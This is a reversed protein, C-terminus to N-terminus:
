KEFEESGEEFIHFDGGDVSACRDQLFRTLIWEGIDSSGSIQHHEDPKVVVERGLLVPLGLVDLRPGVEHSVLPDVLECVGVIVEFKSLILIFVQGVVEVSVFLVFIAVREEHALDGNPHASHM